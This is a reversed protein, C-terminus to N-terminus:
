QVLKEIDLFKEDCLEDNNNALDDEVYGDSHEDFFHRMVFDVGADHVNRLNEQYFVGRAGPQTIIEYSPFYDVFDHRDYIEGAVARLVSKSYTTSVLVHRDEGTATLPVPSVTLLIKVSKNVGKIKSFVDLLDDYIERFTFNKFEYLGEDFEGATVGPCIPYVAGTQKNVWAETLGLTFVMVDLEEFLSRVANLHQEREELLADLSSYGGPQLNPRFADYFRGENKWVEDLNQGGFARDFLQVLQKPTYVNGYRGSYIGYGHAVADAPSFGSPAPEKDLFNFGSAQMRRGIHQAFCSGFTAVKDTKSIEFKKKYIDPLYTPSQTAVGTRWLRKKSLDVYPHKKGSPSSQSLPKASTAQAATDNAQGGELIVKAYRRYVEEGFYLPGKSSLEYDAIDWLPLVEAEVVSLKQSLEYARSIRVKATSAVKEFGSVPYQVLVIRCDPNIARLKRVVEEYAVVVEEPKLVGKQRVDSTNADVAVNSLCYEQGEDRFLVAKASLDYNTDIIFLDCEKYFSVFNLFSERCQRLIRRGNRQEADHTKSFNAIFDKATERFPLVEADSLAQSLVDTRMHNIFGAVEIKPSIATM